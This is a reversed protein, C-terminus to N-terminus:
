LIDEFQLFDCGKNLVQIIKEVHSWTRDEDAQSEFAQKLLLIRRKLNRLIDFHRAFLAGTTGYSPVIIQKDGTIGWEISTMKDMKDRNAKMCGEKTIDKIKIKYNRSLIETAPSSFKHANELRDLM